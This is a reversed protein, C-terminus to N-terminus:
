RLPGGVEVMKVDLGRMAFWTTGLRQELTHLEIVAEGGRALHRKAAAELAAREKGYEVFWARSFEAFTGEATGRRLEHGQHKLYAVAETSYIPVHHGLMCMCKSAFSINRSFGAAVCADALAEVECALDAHLLVGRRAQIHRVIPLLCLTSTPSLGRFTRSVGYAVLFKRLEACQTAGAGQELGKGFACLNCLVEAEAPRGGEGSARFRRMYTLVLREAEAPEAATHKARKTRPRKVTVPPAPSAASRKPTMKSVRTRSEIM